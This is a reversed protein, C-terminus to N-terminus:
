NTNMATFNIYMTNTQPTFEGAETVTSQLDTTWSFCAALSTGIYVTQRQEIYVVYGLKVRQFGSGM